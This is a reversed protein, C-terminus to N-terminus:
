NLKKGIVDKEPHLKQFLAETKDHTKLKILHKSEEKEKFNSVSKLHNM